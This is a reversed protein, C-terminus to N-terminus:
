GFTYGSMRICEQHVRGAGVRDASCRVFVYIFMYLYKHAVYINGHWCGPVYIYIYIYIYICGEHVEGGALLM